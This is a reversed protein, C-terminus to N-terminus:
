NKLGQNADRINEKLTTNSYSKFLNLYDENTSLNKRKQSPIGLGPIHFYEIKFNNTIKKLQGKSFGYKMSLPNNRVDCLARINEKILSNIFEEISKGEYGITFM